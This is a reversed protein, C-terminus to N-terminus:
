LPEGMPFWEGGRSFVPVGQVPDFMVLGDVAASTVGAETLHELLVVQPTVPAQVSTREAAKIVDKAWALWNPYRGPDPLKARERM